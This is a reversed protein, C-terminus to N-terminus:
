MIIDYTELEKPLIFKVYKTTWRYKNMIEDCYLYEINIIKWKKFKKKEDEDLIKDTFIYYDINDNFIVNKYNKFENRYNGFNCSYIAIKM